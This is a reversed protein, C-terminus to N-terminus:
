FPADIENEDSWSYKAWLSTMAVAMASAASHELFGRRDTRRNM